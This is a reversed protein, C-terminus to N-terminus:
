PEPVRREMHEFDTDRLTTRQRQPSPIEPGFGKQEPDINVIAATLEIFALSMYADARL